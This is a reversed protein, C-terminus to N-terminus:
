VKFSNEASSYNNARMFVIADTKPEIMQYLTLPEM